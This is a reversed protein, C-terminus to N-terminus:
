KDKFDSLMDRDCSLYLIKYFYYQNFLGKHNYNTSNTHCSCLRQIIIILYTTEGKDLYGHKLVFYPFYM